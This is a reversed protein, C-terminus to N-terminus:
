VVREATMDSSYIGSRQRWRIRIKRAVPRENVAGGASMFSKKPLKLADLVVTV